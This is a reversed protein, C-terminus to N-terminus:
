IMNATLIMRNINMDYQLTTYSHALKLSRTFSKSNHQIHLSVICVTYEYFYLRKPM